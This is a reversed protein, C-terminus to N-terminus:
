NYLIYNLLYYIVINIKDSHLQNYIIINYMIDYYQVNYVIM